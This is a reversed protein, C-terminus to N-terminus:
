IVGCEKFIYTWWATNSYWENCRRKGNEAVKKREEEHSLYYSIKENLDNPNSFPIYHVNPIFWREIWNYRNKSEMLLSGCFMSEFIRGKLQELGHEHTMCFNLSIKSRKLIDAYKEVPLYSTSHGGNVNAPVNLNDLYNRREPYHTSGVFSVDIDRVLGPDNYIRPDQPTWLHVFKKDSQWGFDIDWLVSLATLPEFQRALNAHGEWIADPWIFVNKTLHSATEVTKISPTHKFWPIYCFVTISPRENLIRNILETDCSQKTQHYYEDFHLRSFTALGSAELSGFLNHESNTLPSGPHADRWKETVFLVHPKM